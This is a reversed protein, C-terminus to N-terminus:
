SQRGFSRFDLRVVDTLMSRKQKCRAFNRDLRNMGFLRLLFGLGAIVVGYMALVIFWSVVQGVALLILSFLLFIARGIVRHAVVGALAVSALVLVIVSTVRPGFLWWAGWGIVALGVGLVLLQQREAAPGRDVNREIM